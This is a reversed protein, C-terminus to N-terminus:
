TCVRVLLRVPARALAIRHAWAGACAHVFLADVYTCMCVFLFVYVCVFLCVCMFLSVYACICFLLGHVRRARVCVRVLILVRARM